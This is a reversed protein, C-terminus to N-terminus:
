GACGRHTLFVELQDARILDSTLAERDDANLTLQKAEALIGRAEILEDLSVAVEARLILAQFRLLAPADSRIKLSDDLLRAAEAYARARDLRAAEHIADQLSHEGPARADSRDSHNDPHMDHFHLIRLPRTRTAAHMSPYPTLRRKRTAHGSRDQM